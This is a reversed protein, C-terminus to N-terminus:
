LDYIVGSFAMLFPDLTFTLTRTLLPRHWDFRSGLLLPTTPFFFPFSLVRFRLFTVSLLAVFHGVFTVSSRDSHRGGGFFTELKYVLFYILIDM